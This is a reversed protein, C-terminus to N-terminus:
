ACAEKRISNPVILCKFSQEYTIIHLSPPNTLPFIRPFRDLSSFLQLFPDKEGKPSPKAMSLLRWLTKKKRRACIGHLDGKVFTRTKEIIFHSHFRISTTMVAGVRFRTTWLHARPNSDWRKRWFSGERTPPSKKACTCPIIPGLARGPPCPNPAAAVGLTAM